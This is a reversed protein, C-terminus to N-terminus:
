EMVDVGEIFSALNVDGGLSRYSPDSSAQCVGNAARSYTTAVPGLLKTRVFPACWSGEVLSAHQNQACELGRAPRAAPSFCGSDAFVGTAGTSEEPLPMCFIRGTETRTFACTDSFTTDLPYTPREVSGESSTLVRQQLRGTGSRAETFPVFEENPVMDRVMFVKAGAPVTVATCSTTTKRYVTTAAPAVQTRYLTERAPCVNADVVRVMTGEASTSSVAVPQTCGPDAFASLPSRFALYPMCRQTGDFGRRLTCEQSLKSDWWGTRVRMGDSTTRVIPWIRRGSVPEAGNSSTAVFTEPPVVTSLTFFDRTGVIETPQCELKGAQNTRLSFAQDVRQPQGLRHISVLGNVNRTGYNTGCSQDAPLLPEGCTNDRYYRVIGHDFANRPPLPLCRSQGDAASAFRCRSGLTSDFWEFQFFKSTDPTSAFIARLRTGSKVRRESWEDTGAVAGNGPPLVGPPTGPYPPYAPYGAPAGMPGTPYPYPTQPYGQPTPGGYPSSGYGPGAIDQPEETRETSDTPACAVAAIGALALFIAPQHSNMRM